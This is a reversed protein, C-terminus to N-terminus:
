FKDEDRTFFGFYVKSDSFYINKFRDYKDITWHYFVSKGEPKNLLMENEKSDSVVVITFFKNSPIINSLHLDTLNYNLKIKNHSRDSNHRLM